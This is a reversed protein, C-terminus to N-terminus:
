GQLKTYMEALENSSWEVHGSTIIGKPLWVHSAPFYTQNSSPISTHYIYIYVVPLFVDVGLPTNQGSM